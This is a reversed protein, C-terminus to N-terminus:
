IINTVETKLTNKGLVSLSMKTSRFWNNNARRKEVISAGELEEFDLEDLM